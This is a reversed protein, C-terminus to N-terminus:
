DVASMYLALQKIQEESLAFAIPGMIKNQRQGSKFALLQSELYAVSQGSVRPFSPPIGHGSPGHCSMCAAIMYPEYGGRYIDAGALAAEEQEPTISGKNADLSVFYADINAMDQESLAASMGAMIPNAREGSKFKALQDAIYGPVQGALHPNQPDSSIGNQGHCSACAAARQKGAQVDGAQVGDALAVQSTLGGIAGAFALLGAMLPSLIVSQFFTRVM